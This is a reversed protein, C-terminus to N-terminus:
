AAEVVPKLGCRTIVEEALAEYDMAGQSTRDYQQIPLGAGAAEALRSNLHITANFVKGPLADNLEKLCKAVENVGKRRFTGVIGLIELSKGSEQVERIKSLIDGLGQVSLWELKIPIMVRDVAVLANAFIVSFSPSTDVLIVDFASRIEDIKLRFYHLAKFTDKSIQSEAAILRQGAPVFSLGEYPTKVEVESFKKRGLLWDGLPSFESDTGQYALYKTLSGQPDGDILLTRIGRAALGAGLNLCTTTKAVGGKQNALAIVIAM